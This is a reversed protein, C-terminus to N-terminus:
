EAFLNIRFTNIWAPALKLDLEEKDFQVDGGSFVSQDQFSRSEQTGLPSTWRRGDILIWSHDDIPKALKALHFSRLVLADNMRYVRVDRLLPPSGPEIVAQILDRGVAIWQPHPQPRPDFREGYSGLHDAAMTMVAVPRFFVNLSFQMLGVIVGFTLVPVLCQQAARGSLWVILREQANTHVIEAWFM